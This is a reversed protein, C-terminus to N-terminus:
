SANNEMEQLVFREKNLWHDSPKFFHNFFNIIATDTAVKGQTIFATNAKIGLTL